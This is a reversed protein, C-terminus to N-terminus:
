LCYLLNLPELTHQSKLVLVAYTYMDQSLAVSISPLRSILYCLNKQGFININFCSLVKSTLMTSNLFCLVFLSFLSFLYMRSSVHILRVAAWNFNFSFFIKIEHFTYWFHSSWNLKIASFILQWYFVNLFMEYQTLVPIKM